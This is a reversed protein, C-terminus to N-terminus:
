RRALEEVLQVFREGRDAFNRFWDYSACGPSLLIVDGPVSHEWAWRFAASFDPQPSAVTVSNESGRCISEYLRQATQGMLSVAKARCAIEGAMETLDVHKDYGGALLVVPATFSRLA